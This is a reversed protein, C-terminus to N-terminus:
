SAGGFRLVTATLEAPDIPKKLYEDFGASLAHRRDEPHGFATLAIIPTARAPQSLARIARLFVYGDEEPMALDCVVVNPSFSTFAEVGERVSSAAAVEAHARRFVGAVLDRTVDQDDIVLVRVGRLESLAGAVPAAIQPANSEAAARAAASDRELVPLEVIFTAGRGSGESAVRIRGGHLEVLSRAISLGLGIGEHARTMSADEQTFPEFVHPLYDPEIGRGTDQVTIRLVAGARAVRVTITGDRPTFKVANSLLNWVIQQLRGEDGLVRPLRPPVSSLVEIGKAIAAPHITTMAAQVVPGVEVPVPTFTMKGAVVRSVDLVDDILQAQVEASTVIAAVAARADEEPLGLALMKAWGLVATMPTRLEHSLTALFEDKRRSADELSKQAALEDTINRFELVAGAGEGQAFPALSCAVPFISGDKRVFLDHHNSLPERQVRANRIACDAGDHGGQSGSAHLVDHFPARALEEPSYGTERVASPNMYTAVGQEDLM